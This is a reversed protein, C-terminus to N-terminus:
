VQLLTVVVTFVDAVPGTYKVREMLTRLLGCREKGITAANLKLKISKLDIGSVM